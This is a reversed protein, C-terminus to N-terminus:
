SHLVSYNFPAVSSFFINWSSVTRRLLKIRVIVSLLLYQWIVTKYLFRFKSFNPSTYLNSNAFNM